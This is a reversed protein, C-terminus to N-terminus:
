GRRYTEGVAGQLIEVTETGVICDKSCKSNVKRSHPLSRPGNMLMPITLTGLAM